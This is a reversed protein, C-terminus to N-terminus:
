VHVAYKKDYETPHYNGTILGAPAVQFRLNKLVPGFDPHPFCKQYCKWTPDPFTLPNKKKKKKKKKVLTNFM